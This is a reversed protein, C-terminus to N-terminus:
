IYQIKWKSISKIIVYPELYNFLAVKAKWEGFIIWTNNYEQYEEKGDDFINIQYMQEFKPIVFTWNDNLLEEKLAQM